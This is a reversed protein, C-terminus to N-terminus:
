NMETLRAAIYRCFFIITPFLRLANHLAMRILQGQVDLQSLEIVVTALYTFWLCSSEGAKEKQTFMVPTNFSVM